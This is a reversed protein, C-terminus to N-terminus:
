KLILQKSFGKESNSICVFFVGEELASSRRILVQNEHSGLNRHYVLQGTTNFIELKKEGPILSANISLTFDSRYSPNPIISFAHQDLHKSTLATQTEVTMTFSTSATDLGDSVGVRIDPYIGADGVRAEFLIEAKGNGDDNWSAFAPLNLVIFFLPDIDDDSAIIEIVMTSDVSMVHDNIEELVPARNIVSRMVIEGRDPIANVLAYKNGNREVVYSEIEQGDQSVSVKEWSNPIRVKVSLPFDFFDDHMSDTLKLKILTDSIAYVELTHSDREQGYKAVDSYKGIWISDSKSSLSALFFETEEKKSSISHYHYSLWGRYYSTNWLKEKKDLLVRIDHEDNLGSRSNVDLYNTQNAQNIVGYVGRMSIYMERAIQSRDSIGCPYAYTLCTNDTLKTNIHDRIEELANRYNEDTYANIECVDHGQIENGANILSQYKEWSSVMEKIIFWSFVVDYKEKMSLWWSHEWEINDDITISAAAIKDKYWLCIDGDGINEPWQLEELTFREILPPDLNMLQSSDAIFGQNEYDGASAPIILFAFVILIIFRSM